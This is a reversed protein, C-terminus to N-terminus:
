MGHSVTSPTPISYMNSFVIIQQKSRNPVYVTNDTTIFLDQPFIGTTENSSFTTANPNWSANPCFIPQNSSTEKIFILLLWVHRPCDIYKKM